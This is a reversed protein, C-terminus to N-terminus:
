PLHWTQKQQNFWGQQQLQHLQTNIWQRLSENQVGKGLAIALPQVTLSTSFYYYQPRRAALSSLVIRDGVIAQVQGNDLAQQAAAYSPVGVLRATPLSSKLYPLTISPQLVAITQRSLLHLKNLRPDKTLIGTGNRYYPESFTVSQLRDETVTLDAIAIDVRGSAVADLRELNTVPVLVLSRESGFLQRALQRALEIEFGQLEGSTSNRFGLPYLNDKVAVVLHGRAKIEALPAATATSTM